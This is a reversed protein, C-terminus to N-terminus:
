VDVGELARTGEWCFLLVGASQCRSIADRVQDTFHGKAACLASYTLDDRHRRAAAREIMRSMADRKETDDLWALFWFMQHRPGVALLRQRASSPAIPLIDAPDDEAYAVDIPLAPPADSKKPSRRRGLGARPKSSLEIHM